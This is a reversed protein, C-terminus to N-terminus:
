VSMEVALLFLIRRVFTRGPMKDWDVESFDSGQARWKKDTLLSPVTGNVDHPCKVSVSIGSSAGARVALVRSFLFSRIYLVYLDSLYLFHFSLPSCCSRSAFSSFLQACVNPGKFAGIWDSAM